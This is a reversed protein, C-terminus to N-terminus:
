LSRGTQWDTARFGAGHLWDFVHGPLVPEGACCSIFTEIIKILFILRRVKLPRHLDPMKIRLWLLAMTVTGIALWYVISMYNMLDFLNNSLFLFLLSILGKLMFDINADFKFISLVFYVTLMVAPMPTHRKENILTLFEPMQGAQGGVFFLRLLTHLARHKLLRISVRRSFRSSTLVVGNASGITAFAVFVPMIWAMPGYVKNAFTQSFQHFM